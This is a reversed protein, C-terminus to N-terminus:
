QQQQTPFSIPKQPDLPCGVNGIQSGRQCNINQIDAILLAAVRWTILGSSLSILAYIQTLPSCYFSPLPPFASKPQATLNLSSTVNLEKFSNHVGNMNTPKILNFKWLIQVDNLIFFSPASTHFMKTAQKITFHLISMWPPYSTLSHSM